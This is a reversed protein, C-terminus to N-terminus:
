PVACAQASTSGRVQRACPRPVASSLAAQPLSARLGGSVLASDVRAPKQPPTWKLSKRKPRASEHTQPYPPINLIQVSNAQRSFYHCALLNTNTMQRDAVTAKQTFRDRKLLNKITLQRYWYGCNGWIHGASARYFVDLDLDLDGM